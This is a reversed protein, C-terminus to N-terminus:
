FKNKAFKSADTKKLFPKQMIMMGNKKFKDVKNTDM